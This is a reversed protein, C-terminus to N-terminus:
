IVYCKGNPQIVADSVVRGYPMNDDYTWIKQGVPANLVLRAVSNIALRNALCNGGQLIISIIISIQLYLM